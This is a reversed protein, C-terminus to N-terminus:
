GMWWHWSYSFLPLWFLLTCGIAALVVVALVPVLVDDDNDHFMM